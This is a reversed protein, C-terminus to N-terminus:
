QGVEGCTEAWLRGAVSVAGGDCGVDPSLALGMLFIMVIVVMCMMAAQELGNMENM